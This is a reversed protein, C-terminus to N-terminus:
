SNPELLDALMLLNAAADICHERMVEGAVAMRFLEMSRLAFHLAEERRLRDNDVRDVVEQLASRGLRSEMFARFKARREDLGIPGWSDVYATTDQKKGPEAPLRVIRVAKALGVLSDRVQKAHEVGAIRHTKADRLDEDAIIIVRRGRFFEAHEATWKGAGAVNTTGLWGLTWLTDADKEGEVVVAPRDADERWAALLEPLRYPVKRVGDVNWIWPQNNDGHGKAADYDPNPRRQQFSKPEFRVSECITAGNEDRYPYVAKITRKPRNEKKGDKEPFLDVFTMGITKLIHETECGAYCRVLLSGNDGVRVGLSNRNDDHGPCRASWAGAGSRRVNELKAFFGDYHQPWDSM